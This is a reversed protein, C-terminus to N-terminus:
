VQAQLKHKKKIAKSGLLQSTSNYVWLGAIKQPVKSSKTKIQKAHMGGLLGCM